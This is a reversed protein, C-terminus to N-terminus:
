RPNLVQNERMPMGKKGSPRDRLWRGGCAWPTIVIWVGGERGALRGSLPSRLFVDKSLSPRFWVRTLAWPSTCHEACRPDWVILVHNKKETMM